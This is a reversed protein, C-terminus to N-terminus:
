RGDILERVPVGTLGELEKPDFRYGGLQITGGPHMYPRLRALLARLWPPMPAPLSGRWRAPTGGTPPLPLPAFIIKVHKLSGLSPKSVNIEGVSPTTGERDASGGGPSTIGRGVGWQWSNIEIWQKQTAIDGVSEYQMYIPM